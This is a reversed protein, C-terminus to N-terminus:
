GTKAPFGSRCFRCSAQIAIESAITDANINFIQGNEDAGLSSVVPLYDADLLLRLLRSNIDLVDGVNGFAVLILFFAPGLVPRKAECCGPSSGPQAPHVEAKDRCGTPM